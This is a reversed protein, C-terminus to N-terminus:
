VNGMWEGLSNYDRSTIRQFKHSNYLFEEPEHSIKLFNKSIWSFHELCTELSRNTFSSLKVNQVFDQLYKCIKSIEFEKYDRSSRIQM